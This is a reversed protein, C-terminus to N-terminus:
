EKGIRVKEGKLTLFLTEFTTEKGFFFFFYTESNIEKFINAQRGSSSTCPTM